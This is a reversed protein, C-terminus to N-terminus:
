NNDGQALRYIIIAIITLFLPCHFPILTKSRIVKFWKPRDDGTIQDTDMSFDIKDEPLVRVLDYLKRFLQEQWLFFGDLGWLITTPICAFYVLNVNSKHTSLALLASLLTVSWGKLLFSNTSFRNIAGQIMELHKQKNSM